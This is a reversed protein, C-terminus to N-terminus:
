SEEELHDMSERAGPDNKEILGYHDVVLSTQKAVEIIPSDQIVRCSELHGCEKPLATKNIKSWPEVVAISTQHVLRLIGTMIQLSVDSGFAFTKNALMIYLDLATQYMTMHDMFNRLTALDGILYPQPRAFPDPSTTTPPPTSSTTEAGATPVAGSIEQIKDENSGSSSATNQRAIKNHKPGKGKRQDTLEEADPAHQPKSKATENDVDKKRNISSSMTTSNTQIPNSILLDFHLKFIENELFCLSDIDLILFVWGRPNLGRNISSNKACVPDLKSSIVRYVAFCGYARIQHGLHTPLSQM